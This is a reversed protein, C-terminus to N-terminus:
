LKVIRKIEEILRNSGHAWLDNVMEIKEGTPTEAKRHNTNVKKVLSVSCDVIEAVKEASLPVKPKEM